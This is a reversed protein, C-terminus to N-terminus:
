ALLPIKDPCPVMKQSSVSYFIDEHRLAKTTKNSSIMLNDAAGISAFGYKRRIQDLTQSLHEDKPPHFMDLQNIVPLFNAADLIITRVRNRRYNALRFLHCAEAIVTVDDNATVSGKRNNKFGDTYHIEVSLAKAIQRRRRLQYAVQEALNRVAALLQVEDNTDATLVTQETIRDTKQPPRVPSNDQGRAERFLRRYYKGFLIAGTESEATVQQVNRVSSLFLFHVLKNVPPEITIPLVETDLPALFTQERGPEVRFITEPVVATTIQSVLKNVSIGIHSQLSVKFQIDRAILNGAQLNDRYIGHMGSLDAFYQGYVTPEIIPSYRAVTQYIYQNIKAYLTSNYPLLTVSHSMKRAIAVKLGPYIGESFAEPSASIITGNQHHSSIVAIARTRLGSDLMREVQLEFDALRIHLVSESM